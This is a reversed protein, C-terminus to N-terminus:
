QKTLAIFEKYIEGLSEKWKKTLETITSITDDYRKNTDNLNVTLTDVASSLNKNKEIESVLKQEIEDKLSITTSLTEELTNIENLQDFFKDDATSKEALSDELAKLRTEYDNTRVKLEDRETTLREITTKQENFVNIAKKLRANLKDIEQQLEQETM